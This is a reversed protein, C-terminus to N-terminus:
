AARRPSKSFRPLGPILGLTRDFYIWQAEEHHAASVLTLFSSSFGARQFSALINGTPDVPVVVWFGFPHPTVLPRSQKRPRTVTVALARLLALDRSTVHATSCTLCTRLHPRFSPM